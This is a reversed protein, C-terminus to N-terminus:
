TSAGTNTFHYEIAGVPLSSNDDDTPIFPSWGTLEVTLPVDKDKLEIHCFPFKTKFTASHFHPLGTTSGGLGNGADHLGFKKWNPVPGELLKAGNPIDKVAITAFMGPDNFMDPQNRVSVQSVTGTGELCFMGAGLGGIPFAIRNLFEGTYPTNYQRKVSTDVKVPDLAPEASPKKDDTIQLINLPIFAMTSGLSVNKLFERRGSSKKM